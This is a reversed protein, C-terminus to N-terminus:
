YSISGGYERLPDQGGMCADFNFRKWGEQQKDRISVGQVNVTGVVEQLYKGWVKPSPVGHCVFDVTFLNDYEKRLYHKLGAIECPTGSYL